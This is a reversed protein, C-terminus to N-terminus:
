TNDHSGSLESGPMADARNTQRTQFGVGVSNQQTSRCNRRMALALCPHSVRSQSDQPQCLHVAKDHQEHQMFFEAGEPPLTDRLVLAHPARPCGCKALIAPDEASPALVHVGQLVQASSQCRLDRGRNQQM